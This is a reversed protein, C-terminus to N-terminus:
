RSAGQGRRRGSSREQRELDAEVMIGILQDFNTKAMWGLSERAKTADALLLDVEAPRILDPDVRVFDGPDLDVHRFAIDVAQQVTHQIGTGIVYDAPEREQLMRWM